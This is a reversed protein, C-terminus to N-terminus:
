TRAFPSVIDAIGSDRVSEFVPRIYTLTAILIAGSLPLSSTHPIHDTEADSDGCGSQFLVGWLWTLSYVWVSWLLKWLLLVDARSNSNNTGQHLDM